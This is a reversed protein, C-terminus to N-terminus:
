EGSVTNTYFCGARPVLASAPLRASRASSLVVTIRRSRIETRPINAVSGFVFEVQPQRAAPGGGSSASPAAICKVSFRKNTLQLRLLDRASTIFSAIHLLTDDTVGDGLLPCPPAAM